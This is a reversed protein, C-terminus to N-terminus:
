WHALLAGPLMEFVAREMPLIEGDLNIRMNKATLTVRRCRRMQTGPIDFIRERLLKPLQFPLTWRPLADVTVLDFLGDDPRAEPAVNMGGGIYRGNAVVLLLVKKTQTPEGDVDFTAEVPRYTFITRIVGYLYPLMGQVYKKASLAYDLVCVDFGTGCVNLFLLDNVKGADLKRPSSSLIFSLAEGPGKPTGLIKVVDNGTGAPIIGLATETGLLGRAAECVTGDGGVAIVTKVGQRAAEEALLTAHGAGETHSVTHAVGRDELARAMQAGVRMAKGNGAAPNVILHVM